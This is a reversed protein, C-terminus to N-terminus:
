NSNENGPIITEASPQMEVAEPFDVPTTYSQWSSQAYNVTSDVNVAPNASVPDVGSHGVASQGSSQVSDPLPITQGDAWIQDLFHEFHLTSRAYTKDLAAIVVQKRYPGTELRKILQRAVKQIAILDDVNVQNAIVDRESKAPEYDLKAAVFLWLYGIAKSTADKTRYSLGARYMAELSGQEAAREFWYRAHDIGQDDQFRSQIMEGLRIQAEVQNLRATLYNWHLAEQYASDGSQHFYYEGLYLQAQLLGHEACEHLLNLGLERNPETGIGEMYLQALQYKAQFSGERSEIVLQWFAGRAKAEGMVHSQQMYLRVLAHQALDNDQKAAMEYWQIAIHPQTTENEKALYLQSAIHGTRAKFEKEAYEAQRSEQLVRHYQEAKKLEASANAKVRQSTSWYHWLVAILGIAMVSLLLIFINM